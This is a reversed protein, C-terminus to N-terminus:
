KPRRGGSDLCAQLTDFSDFTEVEPYYEGGREHCIRTSSKKVPPGPQRGSPKPLRGGAALCDEISEFPLFDETQAYFQTDPAHCLGAQSLKVPDRRKEPQPAARLPSGPLVLPEASNACATVGLVLLALCPRVVVVGGQRERIRM